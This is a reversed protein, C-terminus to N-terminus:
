RENQQVKRSCGLVVFHSCDILRYFAFSTLYFGWYYLVQIRVSLYVHEACSFLLSLRLHVFKKNWKMKSNSDLCVM